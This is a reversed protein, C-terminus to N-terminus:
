GARSPPRSSGARATSPASQPQRQQTPVEPGGSRAFLLRPLQASVNVAQLLGVACFLPGIPNDPRRWTVVSGVGVFPAVLLALVVGADRVSSPGNARAFVLAAVALAVSPVGFSAAVVLGKPKM